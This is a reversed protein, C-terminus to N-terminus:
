LIIKSFDAFGEFLTSVRYLLNLRKERLEMDDVLVMVEDFLCDIPGKLNVLEVLVKGYDKNAMEHRIRGEEKELAAFLRREAAAKLDEMTLTSEPGQYGFQKEAQNLINQARKCGLILKEFDSNSRMHHLVEIRRYSDHVDDFAHSLVADITDHPFGSALFFNHYRQRIFELVEQFVVKRDKRVRDGLTEIAKQILGSLSIEIKKDLLIRLVGLARRRLGFPDRTGSVPSGTSFFGSITDMKDAMSVIAGILTEPLDGEASVPMYHERVAQAVEPAEGAHAAYIGGMIGQLEPFEGVMETVLDAKSLYGARQILPLADPLIKEGLFQALVQIRQVKDYASGLKKHFIVQKLADLNADLPKRTDESFFFRADFLRAKLVKEMGTRIRDMDSSETNSVAIFYPLLGHGNKKEVPLYKLHSKMSAALVEEPLQLFKEDFTGRLPVPFETLHVLTEIFSEEKLKGEIEDVLVRSKKLIKERRETPDLIVGAELLRNQYTDICEICVPKGDSMFRHGYTINSSELDGLKFVLPAHGYISVIWRIPRAFHIDLSGWRMSKSFPISLIWDPLLKGLLEETRKGKEIKKLSVYEGKEKKVFSVDQVAAGYRECFKELAKTTNGEADFAVKRPPGTVDQIIDGQSEALDRIEISMRRPTGLVEVSQYGLRQSELQERVMEKFDQLAKPLFAAPIEETGIELLFDKGMVDVKISSMGAVGPVKAGLMQWEWSSPLGHSSPHSSHGM